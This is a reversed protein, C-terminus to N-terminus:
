HNSLFRPWKYTLDIWTRYRAMNLKNPPSGGYNESEYEYSAALKLVLNETLNREISPNLIFYDFEQSGSIQSNTNYRAMFNFTTLESLKYILTGGAFTSAFSNGNVDNYEQRGASFATSLRESWDKKM